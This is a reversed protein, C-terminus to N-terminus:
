DDDMDITIVSYYVTFTRFDILDIVMPKFTCRNLIRNTFSLLQEINDFTKM